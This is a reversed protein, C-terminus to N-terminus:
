LDSKKVLGARDVVEFGDVAGAPVRLKRVRDPDAVLVRLKRITANRWKHGRRLNREARAAYAEAPLPVGFTNCYAEYLANALAKAQFRGGGVHITFQEAVSSDAVKRDNSGDTRGPMINNIQKRLTESNVVQVASMSKAQFDQIVKDFVSRLTTINEAASAKGPGQLSTLDVYISIGARDISLFPRQKSFCYQYYKNTLSFTVGDQVCLFGSRKSEGLVDFETPSLRPGMGTHRTRITNLDAVVEEGSVTPAVVNNRNPPNWAAGAAVGSM